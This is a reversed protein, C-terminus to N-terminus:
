LSARLGLFFQRGNVYFAQPQDANLGYEKLIPNNLNLADFTLTFHANLKYNLSLALSGVGSDHEPVGLVLGQLYKSRYSYALRASFRENEYYAETNGTFSSSGYLEGGDATRGHAFTANANFGFGLPLPQQWALEIGRNRAPTNVASALTYVSLRNYTVNTLTRQSTTFEIFSSMDMYFLAASLMARPAYYWELSADFNTSRIPKLGPNGLSGSLALDDLVPAPALASYDPRTMTKAVALRAVLEPSLDFRINASPLVDVYNQSTGNLQYYQRTTGDSAYKFYPTVVSGDNTSTPDDCAGPGSLCYFRGRERTQVVRVGANARWHNGSLNAMAYAASTKEAVSFESQWNEYMTSAPNFQNQWALVAGPDLQWYNALYGATPKLGRGFNGPYQQGSWVPKSALCSAACNAEAPWEARREHSTFRVGFKASEWIGSDIAWELDAQAYTERDPTRVISHWAGNTFVNPDNFNTTDTGPFSVNAPAALANMQYALGGTTWAAEYGLDGLTQGLARTTGLKGSLTWHDNPKYKGNLELYRTESSAEPRYIKDVIGPQGGDSAASWNASVLTNSRVLYGPDPSRGATILGAPNALFSTDYSPAAMHSYYGNLDLTLDDSPKIEVDFMGGRRKRQHQLLTANILKPYYVGRLDPHAAVVAADPDGPNGQIVGYGLFEQGDRREHRNESFVQILGGFTSSENKWALLGSAQLDSKAPLSNYFDQVTAEATLAQKFSLPTRTHIDVLGAVGGEVLDAQASKHVVIADTIESPLLSYSVSRGVTGVQSTIFWDATAIAHGNVLTQTLSPDTGRISVRDNESFGGEGAAAKSINVGPVRQVADAINKDPLKGIDEATVVDVVSDADRKRKIAAERSARIGSIVVTDLTAPKDQPAAEDARPAPATQAQARSSAAMCALLGAALAIASHTFATRSPRM